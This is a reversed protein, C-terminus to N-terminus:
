SLDISGRWAEVKCLRRLNGIEKYLFSGHLPLQGLRSLEAMAVGVECKDLWIGFTKTM